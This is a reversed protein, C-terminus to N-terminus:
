GWFLINGKPVFDRKLAINNDATNEIWTHNRNCKYM